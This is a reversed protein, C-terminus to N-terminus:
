VTYLRVDLSQDGGDLLWAGDHPMEVPVDRKRNTFSNDGRSACSECATFQKISLTHNSCGLALLRDNVWLVVRGRSRKPIQTVSSRGFVGM